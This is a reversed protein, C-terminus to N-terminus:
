PKYPKVFIPGYTTRGSCCKRVWSSVQFSRLTVHLGAGSCPMTKVFDVETRWYVQFTRLVHCWRACLWFVVHRTVTFSLGWGPCTCKNLGISGGAMHEAYDKSSGEKTLIQSPPTYPQLPIPSKRHIRLPAGQLGFDILWLVGSGQRCISNM